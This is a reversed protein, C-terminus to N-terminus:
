LTTMTKKDVSVNSMVDIYGGRKTLSERNGRYSLVSLDMFEQCYECWSAVVLGDVGHKGSGDNGADDGDGAEQTGGSSGEDGLLAVTIIGVTMAVQKREVRSDRGDELDVRGVPGVEYTRAKTYEPNCSVEIM